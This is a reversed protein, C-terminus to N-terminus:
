RRGEGEMHLFELLQEEENEQKEWEKEIMIRLRDVTDGLWRDEMEDVTIDAYHEYLPARETYLDKLTYGPKLAVGRDVVDGVRRAMEEYSLKLYVVESIQKLHEMAEKGYVVSGGPAIVANTVKLGANVEEELKLFGELGREAIIHNLM